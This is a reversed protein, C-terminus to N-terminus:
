KYIEKKFSRLGDVIMEKLANYADKIMDALVTFNFDVSYRFGFWEDM